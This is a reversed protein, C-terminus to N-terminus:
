GGKIKNRKMKSMNMRKRMAKNNKNNKTKNKTSNFRKFM